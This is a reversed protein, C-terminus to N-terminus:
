RVNIRGDARSRPAGALALYTVAMLVLIALFLLPLARFGLL